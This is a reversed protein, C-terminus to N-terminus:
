LSLHFGEDIHKWYGSEPNSLKMLKNCLALLVDHEGSVFLDKAEEDSFLHNIVNPCSCIIDIAINKDLYGHEFSFSITIM